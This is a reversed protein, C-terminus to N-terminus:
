KTLLERLALTLDLIGDKGVRALNQRGVVWTPMASHYFKRFM